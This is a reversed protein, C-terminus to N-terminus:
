KTEKLALIADISSDATEHCCEGGSRTHVAKACEEITREREARLAQAIASALIVDDGCGLRATFSSQEWDLVLKKAREEVTEKATMAEEPKCQQCNEHEAMMHQCLTVSTPKM